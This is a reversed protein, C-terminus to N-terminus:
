GNHPREVNAVQEMRTSRRRRSNAVNLVPKLEHRVDIELDDAEDTSSTPWFEITCSELYATIASEVHSPYYRGQNRALKKEVLCLHVGLSRRLASGGARNRLHFKRWRDRISESGAVGVYLPPDAEEADPAYVAYVGHDLPFSAQCILQRTRPM